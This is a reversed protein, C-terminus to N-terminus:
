TMCDNDTHMDVLRVICMSYTQCLQQVREAADLVNALGGVDSAPWVNSRTM